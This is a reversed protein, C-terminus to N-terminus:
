TEESVFRVADELPLVALVLRRDSGDEIVIEAYASTGDRDFGIWAVGDGIWGEVTDLGAIVIEQELYVFRGFNGPVPQFVLDSRAPASLPLPSAGRVDYEPPAAVALTADSEEDGLWELRYAAADLDFWIRHPVGTVVSRQRALELQGALRMAAQNLRRERLMGLNPAVFTSLLGLIAVVALLEILSFAARTRRSRAPHGM